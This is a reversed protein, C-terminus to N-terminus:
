EIMLQLLGGHQADTMARIKGHVVGSRKLKNM